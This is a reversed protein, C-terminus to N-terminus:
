LGEGAYADGLRLHDATWRSELEDIRSQGCGASHSGGGFVVM